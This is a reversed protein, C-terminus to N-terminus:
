FKVLGIIAAAVIAIGVVAWLLPMLAYMPKGSQNMNEYENIWTEGSFGTGVEGINEGSNDYFSAVGNDSMQVIVTAFSTLLLLSVMLTVIAGADGTQGVSRKQRM